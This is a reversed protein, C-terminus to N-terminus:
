AVSPYVAHPHIDFNQPCFSINHHQPQHSLRVLATSHPSTPSRPAIPRPLHLHPHQQPPTTAAQPQRQSSSLRAQLSSSRARRRNRSVSGRSCWCAPAVQADNAPFGRSIGVGYKQFLCCRLTVAPVETGKRVAISHVPWGVALDDHHM